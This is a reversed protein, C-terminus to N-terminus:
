FDIVEVDFKLTSNAPIKAGMARNGYAMEPPCTLTARSGKKLQAVGEDWCKIVQGAGLTFAFPTGRTRSSDFVSGDLLTGTYHVQVKRGRPVLPGTGEQTIEVRFAKPDVNGAEAKPKSSSFTDKFFQM